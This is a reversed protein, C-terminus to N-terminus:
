RVLGLDFDYNLLSPGVLNWVVLNYWINEAHTRDKMQEEVSTSQNMKTPTELRISTLHFRHSIAAVAHLLRLLYAIIYPDTM